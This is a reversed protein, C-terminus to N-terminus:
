SFYFPLYSKYAKSTKQRRLDFKISISNLYIPFLNVYFSLYRVIDDVCLFLNIM